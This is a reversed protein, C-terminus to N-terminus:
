GVAGGLPRVEILTYIAPRVTSTSILADQEVRIDARVMKGWLGEAIIQEESESTYTGRLVRKGKLARPRARTTDIRLGFTKQEADAVSLTGVVTVAFVRPKEAETLEAAVEKARAPTLVVPDDREASSISIVLEKKASMNALARYAQAVRGGLDAARRPAEEPSAELLDAALASAVYVNPVTRELAQEIRPLM